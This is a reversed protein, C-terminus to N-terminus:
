NSSQGSLINLILEKKGRGGIGMSNAIQQLQAVDLIKLDAESYMIKGQADKEKCYICDFEEPHLSARQYLFEWGARPDPDREIEMGTIKNIIKICRQSNLVDSPNLFHSKAM